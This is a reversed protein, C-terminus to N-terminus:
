GARSPVARTTGPTRRPVSPWWSYAMEVLILPIVFCLWERTVGRMESDELFAFLLDQADGLVRVLVFGLAVACSRAVFREHAQIARRRACLWASASFFLWVLAFLVLPIRRGESEITLGLYTAILAAGIAASLYVKGLRRHWAPWRSRVRRSFQLPPLLLLPAALVGHTLLALTRAAPENVRDKSLVYAIENTLYWAGLIFLGAVVTRNFREAASAM